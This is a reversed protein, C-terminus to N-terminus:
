SAWHRYDRGCPCSVETPLHFLECTACALSDPERVEGPRASRISRPFTVPALQRLHEVVHRAFIPVFHKGADSIRSTGAEPSGRTTGANSLAILSGEGSMREAAAVARCSRESLLLQQMSQYLRGPIVVAKNPHSCRRRKGAM